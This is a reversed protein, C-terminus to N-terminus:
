SCRFHDVVLARHCLTGLTSLVFLHCNNQRSCNDKTGDVSFPLVRVNLARQEEALVHCVLRLRGCEDLPLVRHRLCFVTVCEEANNTALPLQHLPDSQVFSDLRGLLLPLSVPVLEEEVEVLQM